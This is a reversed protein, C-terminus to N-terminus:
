ASEGSDDTRRSGGAKKWNDTQALLGSGPDDGKPASGAVADPVDISAGNAVEVELGLVEVVVNAFPGVYKVSPM